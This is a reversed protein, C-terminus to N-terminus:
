MSDAVPRFHRDFEDHLRRYPAEIGAIPTHPLAKSLADWYPPKANALRAKVNFLERDALFPKATLV